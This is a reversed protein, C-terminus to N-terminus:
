QSVIREAFAKWSSASKYSDISGSPVYFLCNDAGYFAGQALYPPNTPYLTVRRLATCGYFANDSISTVGSPIVALILSECERFTSVEIRTVGEPIEISTLSSCKSFAAGKISELTSPLAVGSLASCGEFASTGISQLGNNFNVSALQTCGLFADNGISILSSPFVASKIGYCRFFAYNGISSVGDPITLHVIESGNLYLHTDSSKHFPHGGQKISTNVWKALDSIYLSSLRDCGAFAGEDIYRLSAPVVFETLKACYYFAYDGISVVGEPLRISSLSSCCSFADDPVSTVSTFFRFEDFSTIEDNDEFVNRISTVAAAEEYSLEGDGNDDWNNICVSKVAPDAFVIFNASPDPDEIFVLGKDADTISGYISRSISVPKVSIKEATEGAKHFSLKFGGALTGPLLEIYYWEGCEFPEGGACTLEVATKSDTVNDVVPVGGEFKVTATGAITEGGLPAFTVKRIGAQSLSFRLGGCVSYFAMSLSSSQGVTTHLGQAFTGARAVQRDPICCTVSNGDCSSQEDYPYVGWLGGQESFGENFSIIGDFLGSFSTVSELGTCQATLQSSKGAYFLKVQDGPEWFVQTGGDIVATRSFPEEVSAILTIETFAGERSVSGSSCASVLAAFCLSLLGTIRKIGM